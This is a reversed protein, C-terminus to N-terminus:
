VGLSVRKWKFYFINLFINWSLFMIILYSYLIISLFGTIGDPKLLYITQSVKSVYNSYKHPSNRSPNFKKM